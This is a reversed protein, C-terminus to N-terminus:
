LPESMLSHFAMVYSPLSVMRRTTRSSASRINASASRGSAQSAGVAQSPQVVRSTTAWM